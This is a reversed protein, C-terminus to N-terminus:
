MCQVQPLSALGILGTVDGWLHWTQRGLSGRDLLGLVKTGNVWAAAGSLAVTCWFATNPMYGAAWIQLLTPLPRSATPAGGQQQAPLLSAGGKHGVSIM